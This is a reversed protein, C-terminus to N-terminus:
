LLHRPGHEWTSRESSTDPRTLLPYASCYHQGLKSHNGRHGHTAGPCCCCCISETVVLAATAAAVVVVVVVVVNISIVGAAM